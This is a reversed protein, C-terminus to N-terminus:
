SERRRYHALGSGTLGMPPPPESKNRRWRYFSSSDVGVDPDDLAHLAIEDEPWVESLSENSRRPAKKSTHKALSRGEPLKAM